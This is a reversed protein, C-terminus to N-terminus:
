KNYLSLIKDRLFETAAAFEPGKEASLLNGDIIVPAGYNIHCETRFGSGKQYNISIPLIPVNIESLISAAGRRFGSVQPSTQVSGEPFIMISEGKKLAEIHQEIKQYFTWDKRISLVGYMFYIVPIFFLKKLWQSVPHRFDRAGMIRIPLLRCFLPFPLNICLIWPDVISRHNSIIAVPKKALYIEQDRTVKVNYALRIIPWFVLYTIIWVIKVFIIHIKQFIIM